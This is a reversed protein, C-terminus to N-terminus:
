GAVSVSVVHPQAGNYWYLFCEIDVVDGVNLSRIADYVATTDNRLYYEDVFTYTAGDLEVDFYLDADTGEEGSNDWAYFFAAGNEDKAAVTLGKFVVRENMHAALEETGLLATLDAAPAVYSTGDNCFEFTAGAGIEVEGAWEAKYGTVKIKAGPVLKESDEQSCTMNYIFYAGDADAAYVTIQDNWWSQTDQVYAEIVVEDDAAAAAYEAYSMVGESKDNVNGTVVVDTVQPQAGNYWYLFGTVDIVDGVKLNRITEYVETNANRLYYEDVFGFVTGNCSADFYLDADTGEEGSNDWSYFFARGEEDKAAVVLGKFTVYENIHAALEETGLLATLDKAEAVYSGEEFEFTAGAGIEIEGAWEAKYGTVKIKTGPVLNASDEESCSMNYIFYAGDEDAAYVTIQDNWWSQTDQVYAEIVVESDLDAAMYEAYSMVGDDEEVEPEAPTEAAPAEAAAPAETAAPAAAPASNGCACLAFVMCLSLILALIKKM